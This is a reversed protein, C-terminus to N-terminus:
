LQWFGYWHNGTMITFIFGTVAGVLMMGEVGLNIIGSKEALLEGLAALLLPTGAVVAAALLGTVANIDM